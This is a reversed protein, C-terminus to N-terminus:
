QMEAGRYFDLIKVAFAFQYKAQVMDSESKSWSNVAENYETQTIRGASFKKTQMELSEKAAEQAVISAEYQARASEANYFAQQIEKYLSKKAQDIAITSSVKEIKASKIRNSVSFRSFIPIQLNLSVSKSLNDSIQDGFSPNPMGKVSYYNTNVGASASLTPMHGAKATEISQEAAQERYQAAKIDDRCLLAETYIQEPSTAQLQMVDITPIEVEMGEPSPLELSQSLDLLALEYDNKAKVLTMKDSAVRSKAQYVDSEAAKGQQLLSEKQTLQLESLELQKEDVGVMEKAYLVQLYARAVAIGVNDKANELDALAAYLNFEASKKQAARGYEFLTLQANVGVNTNSTNRNAYTNNSTLGRGFDFGQYVSASLSPLYQKKANDLQVEGSAYSQEMRKIELNNEIAYEVCEKLTWVKKKGSGQEQAMIAGAFMLALGVTMVIRKM